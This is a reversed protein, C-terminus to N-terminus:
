RSYFVGAYLLERRFSAGEIRSLDRWVAGRAELSWAASLKRTLLVQLSSRNEDDLSTLEQHLLDDILIGDPFQDLQLTATTTIFLAGFLEMTVAAVVRQRILSQGYSNSDIVTAQYSGTAVLNGTWTLEVGARQYRDRRRLTTPMNCGRDIARDPSCGALATSAYSRAEFGLTAALELNETRDPPQWLTADLRANAVPGRWSFTRDPKYWFDRGGLGLTLHHDEGHGLMVLADGGLNRFTRAGVGGLVAFSDAATLHLGAALTGAGIPYLWRLDGAYLMVNEDRTEPSTVMRALGSVDGVYAGDLLHGAHGIRAGLRGAAAATRPQDEVRAVNTDAEAGSEMRVTWSDAAAIRPMALVVGLIGIAPPAARRM